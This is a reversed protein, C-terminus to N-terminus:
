TLIQGNALMTSAHTEHVGELKVLDLFNSGIKVSVMTGSASDSLKVVSDISAGPFAKTFERLNLTDGAGFDAITDAGLYNSGKQVDKVYWMYADAGAGGIFTDSGGMGRFSDNGAGGDFVNSDKGGKFTDGFATGIIKEIGAMKDDTFGYIAKKSADVNVPGTAGSYDLTDFGSGGVYTDIGSGAYIYDNGDGGNVQDNGSGDYIVDNGSGGTLTDNGDGGYLTDNGAGGDVTDSDAEGYLTDNGAGGFITDQGAGGYLVSDSQTGKIWDAKASGIVSEVGTVTGSSWGTFTGATLDVKVSISSGSFDLTDFGAGGDYRDLGLSNGAIMKDNGDGGYVLDNGDGGTLTDNGLGGYITDNGTGGDITDNNGAGSLAVHLTTATSASGGAQESSTATVTLDFDAAAMTTITLGALQAATLTWTGDANATGASLTAGAPMGSISLSLAESGDTDSLAASIDLGATVATAAGDGYITDNGAGGSITDDGATGTLTESASTGSIVRGALLTASAAAVFPADAVAGVAVNIQQTAFGGKGDSVKVTFSDSGSFNAAGMYTYAGTGADLMVTGNAPGQDLAFGLTDGDIDSAAVQGSVSTDEDTSLSAVAETVPADNVAAVAVTVAQTTMAGSPDSIVVEFSDAGNFNANPTYTYAGTDENISLTGNQPLAALTYLLADGDADAAVVQGNLATDEDTAVSVNAEAAPAQNLLSNLPTEVGDIFIKAAEFNSITLGLASLTLAPGGTQASLAAVSGASALQADMFSRLSALDNRVAETLGASAINIVVTDLGAGGDIINTGAGGDLTDNGTGGYLKDNGDGGRLSDDGGDGYMTDDGADGNIIDNGGGGFFGDNGEGGYLTDNGADGTLTDIGAGGTIVDNGAGGNIRDNGDGGNIEDDLTTGTIVDNGTTGNIQAM